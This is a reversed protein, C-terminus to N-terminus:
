FFASFRFNIFFEFLIVFTVSISGTYFVCLQRFIFILRLLRYYPTFAKCIHLKSKTQSPSVLFPTTMIIM